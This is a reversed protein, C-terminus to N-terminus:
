AFHLRSTSYAPVCSREPAALLLEPEVQTSFSHMLRSCVEALAPPLLFSGSRATSLQSGPAGGSVAVWAFCHLEMSQQQQQQQEQAHATTAASIDASSDTASAPAAATCPSSHLAHSPIPQVWEVGGEISIVMSCDPHQAAAHRVRNVAGELTQQSGWPQAPVGSPVSAAIVRMDVGPFCRRLAGEAANYKAPNASTVVVTLHQQQQQAADTSLRGTARCRLARRCARATAHRQLM